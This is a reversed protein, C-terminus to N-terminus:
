EGDILRVSYDGAGRNSSVWVTYRGTKPLRLAIVSGTAATGKNDAALHVGEPSRLSVVPEFSASKVNLFVTQGQKGTFVWFDVSGPQITGKARGGIELEKLKTESLSQRFEGGGGDGLSSVQLRYLGKALVMHTIRGQLEDGDAGGAGVLRGQADYLRLLPVFKQSGLSAQFLQGPAANFSYFAVGGIPLNGEVDKGTFIPVSPDKASVKYSASTEAVMQLQYRGARGLIAAYRLRGGRSAVPLFQIEPRDGSRGIRATTKKDEPAHILRSHIEGKKEVEILRFDGPKGDFSLVDMEGQQLNAEPDKAATLASRRAERLLLDYRYEPQGSVILCCEGSEEVLASGAWTEMERGKFDLMSWAERGTGRLYPVLIQDKVGKFYHYSKGDDNFVGITSKGADLQTAQFRRVTIRYNGGAADKFARVRIKYEGKESLRIMFRSETGPDDVDAVVIQDAKGVTRALGLLPDFEKSVVHVIITEGKEGDFIWRDIQGPTLFAGAGQGELKRISEQARVPLPLLALLIVLPWLKPNM